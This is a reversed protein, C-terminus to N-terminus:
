NKASEQKKGIPQFFRLAIIEKATESLKYIGKKRPDGGPDAILYDLGEKGVIVVFHPIGRYSKFSVIVPNGSQLNTDILNFSPLDEYAHRVRNPIVEAAKEWRIWGRETYGGHETLFQNLQKPNTEIGYYNLVMATATVACGAQRLTASTSGLMDAQWSVDDQRFYPVSLEVREAFFVGGRAPIVAKRFWDLSDASLLGLPLTFALLLIKRV